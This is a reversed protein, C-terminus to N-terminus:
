MEIQFPGRRYLRSLLCNLESGVNRGGGEGVISGWGELGRGGVDKRGLTFSEGVIVGLRSAPFTGSVGRAWWIREDEEARGKYLALVDGRVDLCIVACEGLDDTHSPLIKGVTFALGPM